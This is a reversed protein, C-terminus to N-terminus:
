EHNKSWAKAWEIIQNPTRYLTSGHRLAPAALVGNDIAWQRAEPDHDMNTERYPIERRKLLAKVGVCRACQNKTYLVVESM